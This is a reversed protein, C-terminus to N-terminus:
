TRKLAALSWLTLAALSFAAGAACVGAWGFRAYSVTSTIAGLASGASYFVMYGGVLRSRAEPRRAFIVSQNTVHVAQVAFDLLVVGIAFVVLSRPLFGITLWSLLLLALSFGTVREAFGKDALRGANGAALAGALGAIGFFGIQTHSLSFPSASLPLVMATWLTSFSAFILFAFVARLRLVPDQLFLRPISKLVAAYRESRAVPVDRPLVRMLLLSLLLMVGASALYVMRWGGIDALVGAVFRAALIGVVVGSTVLGVAQGRAEPRVLAASMAVLVQVVVALLGVVIMGGFLAIVNPACGVALLALASLLTQITLLRRRDVLDGLPVILVLGAAYGIQTLTVVLGVAGPSIGFTAAITGLLPQAYYINAVSAGATMAFILLTWRPFEPKACTQQRAGARM